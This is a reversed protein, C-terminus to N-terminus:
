GPANAQYTQKSAGGGGAEAALVQRWVARCGWTGGVLPFGLGPASVLDSIPLDNPRNPSPCCPTPLTLSLSLSFPVTLAISGWSSFSLARARESDRGGGGPGACVGWRGGGGAMVGTETYEVSDNDQILQRKVKLCPLRHSHTRGSFGTSRGEWPGPRAQEPPWLAHGRNSYHRGPSAARGTHRHTINGHSNNLVHGHEV